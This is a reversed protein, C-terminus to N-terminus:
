LGFVLLIVQEAKVTEGKIICRAQLYLPEREKLKEEIFRLLDEGKLQEILPRPIQAHKLRYALSVPSMRLYVSVGHENIFQMNDFFCPTGGGTAIVAKHHNVTLRLAQQELERFHSEGFRLFIDPISMGSLNEIVQDIDVFPYGLKKALRRGLSSKGSGMFGILYIRM